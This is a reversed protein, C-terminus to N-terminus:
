DNAGAADAQPPEPPPILHDGDHDAFLTCGPHSCLRTVEEDKGAALTADLAANVQEDTPQALTAADPSATLPFQITEQKEEWSMDHTQVLEGTDMRVYSKKGPEPHDYRIDCGIQALEYGKNYLKALNTIEADCKKIRENFAGDSIKKEGSITELDAIATALKSAIGAKEEPTYKEEIALTITDPRM